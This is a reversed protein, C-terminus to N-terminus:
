FYMGTWNNAFGSYIKHDPAPPNSRVVRGAFCAVANYLGPLCSKDGKRYSFAIIVLVITDSHTESSQHLM